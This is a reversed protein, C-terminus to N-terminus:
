GVIEGILVPKKSLDIETIKVKYFNNVQASPDNIIIPIYNEGYGQLLKRKARNEALVTQETGIFSKYYDVQNKESLTRIVEGRQKKIVSTIKNEMREARTGTRDSYPFTHVHTFGLEKVAQCSDNFDNETEDPFGVIIDTTFNFDPHIKKIRSIIDSFSAVSYMRRM